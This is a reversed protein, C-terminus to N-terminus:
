TLFKNNEHPLPVRCQDKKGFISYRNNAILAYIKNRLFKPFLFLVYFLKWFGGIDIMINLIADSHSYIGGKKLYVVSNLKEFYSSPLNNKAYEGQLTSLLFHNKRDRKLIFDAFGNCLVCVGDFFIIPKEPM